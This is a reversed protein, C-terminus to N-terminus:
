FGPEVTFLRSKHNWGYFGRGTHAISYSQGVSHIKLSGLKPKNTKLRMNQRFSSRQVSYYKYKARRELM